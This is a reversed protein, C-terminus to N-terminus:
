EAGALEKLHADLAYRGDSDVADYMKMYWDRVETASMCYRLTPLSRSLFETFFPLGRTWLLHSDTMSVSMYAGALWELHPLAAAHEGRNQLASIFGTRLRAPSMEMSERNLADAKEFWAQGRVLEGTMVSTTALQQANFASPEHEFLAHYHDFARDWQELRSHSLACVRQADARVLPEPHQCHPAALAIAASYAESNLAAVATQLEIPTPRASDAGIEKPEGQPKGPSLHKMVLDYDEPTVQWATVVDSTQTKVGGKPNRKYTVISVTLWRAAPDDDVAYGEISVTWWESAVMTMQLGAAPPMSALLAPGQAALEDALEASRRGEWYLEGGKERIAWRRAPESYPDRATGRALATSLLGVLALELLWVLCHVSPTFDAPNRLEAQKALDWLMAAWGTVGSSAFLTAEATGIARFTVVWRVWLAFFSLLLAIATNVGVSRSHGGQLALSITIACAAAFIGAIVPTVLVPLGLMLANAYLWACVALAPMAGLLMYAPLRWAIRGSPSYCSFRATTDTM